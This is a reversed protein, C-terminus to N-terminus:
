IGSSGFGLDGRITQALETVELIEPHEVPQILMQLVKDGKKFTYAEDGLNIVAMLVEGRYGSDIVGALTKIKHNTSVSSRDWCLGVYGEQIEMALGSRVKAVGGPQVATDELAYLDMGADFANAYTPLKAEPDLRKIKVLM